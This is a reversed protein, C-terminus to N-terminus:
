RRVILMDYIKGREDLTLDQRASDDLSAPDPHLTFDIKGDRELQQLASNFAERGLKFELFRRLEVIPVISGGGGPRLEHIADVVLTEASVAASAPSIAAAPTLDGSVFDDSAAVLKRVDALPMSFRRSIQDLANTLLAKADIPSASFRLSSSGLFKGSHM